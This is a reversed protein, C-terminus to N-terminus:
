TSLDGVLQWTDTAVKLVSAGSHQARCKLGPTGNLTVGGAAAFTVQGAGIQIFDIRSGIPFAVSANTPITQTIASANSETITKGVDTLVLTDTTGTQARITPTAAATQFDSINAATLALLTRIQAVTAAVIDGSALRALITSAGMAVATPVATSATANAVVTNAAQTTLDSLAVALLTKIQAPTAAVIDGSALRALMTSAAMAIAQPAASSATPNGNITNAAQAVLDTIGIALATKAAAANADTLRARGFTTTTLAAIATLDADVDQKLTAVFAAAGAVDFDTTASLAATGLGALTRLAAADAAALLSRGFSTTTLAAIATLDSDLPQSAAQAANAKTTADTAAAAIAAAQATAAAGAADFDTTASVAATGLGALTRLASANAAALLSRGYTTTTLAAIATLDSDLPQSAAAAANAKTTADTAAAAIAAAQAAAAAGAVDYDTSATTAASGLGAATRLAAANVAELLARGFSTTSLAAISTLDADLPQKGALATTMAAAFSADDALAAALEDLTDLAGPAGAILAAVAAAATGAPDAGVDGSDLVVIGTQGNVSDVAGGGGGGGTQDVWETDFDTDSNKALVQGTTGGVAVGAGPDGPDGPEGPDGPDGQPGPPGVIAPGLTAPNYARLTEFSGDATACILGSEDGLTWTYFTNTRSLDLNSWLDVYFAGTVPDALDTYPEVIIGPQGNVHAVVPAGANDTLEIRLPARGWPEGAKLAVDSVRFKSAM